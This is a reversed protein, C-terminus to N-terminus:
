YDINWADKACVYSLKDLLQGYAPAIEPGMKNFAMKTINNIEFNLMLQYVGRQSRVYQNQELQLRYRYYAMTNLLQTIPTGDNPKLSAKGYCTSIISIKKPNEPDYHHKLVSKNPTNEVLGGDFYRKGNMEFPKFIHPLSISATVADALDGKQLIDISQSEESYDCALAFFPMRCEEFTRVPLISRFFDNLQDTDFPMTLKIKVYDRLRSKSAIEVIDESSLGACYAGGVMSGASVGWVEDFYKMLNFKELFYMVAVNGVTGIAAGGALSLVLLHGKEKVLECRERIKDIINQHVQM